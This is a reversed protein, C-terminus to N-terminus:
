VAFEVEDVVVIGEFCLIHDGLVFAHRVDEFVAFEFERAQAM